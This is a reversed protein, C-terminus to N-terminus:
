VGSPVITCGCPPTCLLRPVRSTILRPQSPILRRVMAQSLPDQYIIRQAIGTIIIGAIISFGKQVSGAHTIV